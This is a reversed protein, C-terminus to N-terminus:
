NDKEMSEMDRRYRANPPPQDWIRRGTHGPTEYKAFFQELEAILRDRLPQRPADASHREGFPHALDYWV